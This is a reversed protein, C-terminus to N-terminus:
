RISENPRRQQVESYRSPNLEELSDFKIKLIELGSERSGWALRRFRYSEQRWKLILAENKRDLLHEQALKTAWKLGEQNKHEPAWYFSEMVENAM